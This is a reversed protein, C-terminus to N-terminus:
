DGDEMSTKGTMLEDILIDRLEALYRNEETNLYYVHQKWTNLIMMLVSSVMEKSRNEFKIENKNKTATFYYSKEIKQAGLSKLFENLKVDNKDQKYLSLNFGFSKALNENITLKCANKERVIRNIDSVIDQIKRHQQKREQFAIFHSPVLSYNDSKIDEITVTSCFGPESKRREIVELAKKINGQSFIKVNKEYVRNTHSAGGCQGRQERKEVEYTSRMDIFTVKTTDKKKNFVVICTPVNTAEFMSDPCTIVIDVLNKEILYKRIEKEQSNETSLIGCPMILAAKTDIKEIATLIFAYNANSEPPLECRSFRPEIQAFAPLKWKINYPPNSILSSM